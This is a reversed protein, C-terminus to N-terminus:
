TLGPRQGGNSDHHVSDDPGATGRKPKGPVTVPKITRVGELGRKRDEDFWETALHGTHWVALQGALYGAAAAWANMRRTRRFPTWSWQQATGRRQTVLNQMDMAWDGVGPHEESVELTFRWVAAAHLALPAPSRSRSGRDDRTLGSTATMIEAIAAATRTRVRSVEDARTRREERKTDKRSTLIFVLFLAIFGIVAAVSGQLLTIWLETSSPFNQSPTM